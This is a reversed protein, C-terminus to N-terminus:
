ITSHQVTLLCEVKTVNLKSLQITLVNLKINLQTSHNLCSHNLCSHALKSVNSDVPM